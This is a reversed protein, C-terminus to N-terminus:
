ENTEELTTNNLQSNIKEMRAITRQEELSLFMNLGAFIEEFASIEGLEFRNPKPNKSNSRAMKAEIKELKDTFRKELGDMITTVVAATRAFLIREISELSKLEETSLDVINEEKSM